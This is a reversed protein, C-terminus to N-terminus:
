LIVLNNNISLMKRPSYDLAFKESHFSVGLKQVSLVKLTGKLGIIGVESNAHVFPAASTLAPYSLVSTSYKRMYNYILWPRLSLVLLAPTELVQFKVLKVPEDGLFRFRTDSLSGTITDITSRIM